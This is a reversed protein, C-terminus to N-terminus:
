EDNGVGQAGNKSSDSTSSESTSSRENLQQESLWPKELKSLVSGIYDHAHASDAYFSTLSVTAEKIAEDLCERRLSIWATHRAVREAKRQLTTSLAEKEHERVAIAHAISSNWQEIHTALRLGFDHQVVFAHEIEQARKGLSVVEDRLSQQHEEYQKFMEQLLERGYRRYLYIGLSVIIGFNLLRFITPMMSSTM